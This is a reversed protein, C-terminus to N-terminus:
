WLLSGTEKVVQVTISRATGTGDGLQGSGNSGRTRISGDSKLAIAYDPGSAVATVGSIELPAM